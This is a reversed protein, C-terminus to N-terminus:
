SGSPKQHGYMSFLRSVAYFVFSERFEDEILSEDTDASLETSPSYYALVELTESSTAIIPYTGIKRVGPTGIGLTYYFDPIGTSQLKPLGTYGGPYPKLIRGFEDPAELYKVHLIKYVHAFSTLDSSSYTVQNAVTTFSFTGVLADTKKVFDYYGRNIMRKVRKLTFDTQRQLEQCLDLVDDQMQKFTLGM